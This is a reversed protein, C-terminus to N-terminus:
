FDVLEIFSFKYNYKHMHKQCKQINIIGDLIFVPTLCM